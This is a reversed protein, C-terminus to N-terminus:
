SQHSGNKPHNRLQQVEELSLGTIKAIKEDPLIGDKMMKEATNVAYNRVEEQYAQQYAQRYGTQYGKEYVWDSYDCM